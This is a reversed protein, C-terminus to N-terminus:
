MWKINKCRKGDQKHEKGIKLWNRLKFDKDKNKFGM